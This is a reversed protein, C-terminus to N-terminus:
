YGVGGGGGVQRRTVMFDSAHTSTFLSRRSPLSNYQFEGHFETLKSELIYFEHFKRLVEWHTDEAGSRRFSFSPPPPHTM